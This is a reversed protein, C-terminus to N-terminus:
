LTITTSKQTNTIEVQRSFMLSVETASYVESSTLLEHYSVSFTKAGTKRVNLALGVKAWKKEERKLLEKGGDVEDLLLSIFHAFDLDRLM